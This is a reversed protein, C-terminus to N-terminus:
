HLRTEVLAEDGTQLEWMLDWSASTGADAEAFRSLQELQHPINEQTCLYAATGTSFRLL